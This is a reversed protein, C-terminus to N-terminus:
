SRDSRGLEDRIIEKARRGLDGKGSHGMGVFSPMRRRQAPVQGALDELLAVARTELEDPLEDVLQHLREKGTM